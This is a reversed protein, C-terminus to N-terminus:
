LPSRHIRPTRKLAVLIYLETEDVFSKIAFGYAGLLTEAEGRSPFDDLPFPSDKRLWDIFGKGMPHSVVLRGGTKMMRSVNAFTGGKDAINSYVANMFVVDLTEAPLSLERADGSLTRVYPYHTRLRKLMAEALDCAYIETPKYKKILPILVGTGTGIDLVRDGQAIGAAAVIQELREPVGKDLPGDFFDVAKNFVERQIQNIRRIDREDRAHRNKM